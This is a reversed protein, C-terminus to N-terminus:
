EFRVEVRQINQLNENSFEAGQPLFFTQFVVTFGSIGNTNVKFELDNPSPTGEFYAFDSANGIFNDGIKVLRVYPPVLNDSPRFWTLAALEAVSPIQLSVYIRGNGSVAPNQDLLLTFDNCQTTDIIGVVSSGAGSGGLTCPTPNEQLTISGNTTTIQVNGGDANSGIANKVVLAATGGQALPTIALLALEGGPITPLPLRLPPTVLIRVTGSSPKSRDFSFDTGQLANGSIAETINILSPDFTIDFQLGVINDADNTFTVPVTMNQGSIGNGSGVTLSQAYLTGISMMWSVLLIMLVSFSKM